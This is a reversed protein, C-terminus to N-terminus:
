GHLSIVSLIHVNEGSGRMMAQVKYSVVYPIHGMWWTTYLQFSKTENSVYVYIYIYIYIIHIYILDNMAVVSRKVHSEGRATNLVLIRVTSLM